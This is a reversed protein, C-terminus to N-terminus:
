EYRNVLLDYRMSDIFNMSIILAGVVGVVWWYVIDFKTFQNGFEIALVAFIIPWVVANFYGFMKCQRRTFNM